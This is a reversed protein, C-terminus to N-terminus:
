VNLKSLELIAFGLYIPKDMLVANQKMTHSDYNEYSKHIGDFTLKSQQNLIQEYEHKKNFQLRVRNRINEM